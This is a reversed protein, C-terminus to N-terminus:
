GVFLQAALGGLKARAQGLALREVRHQGFNKGDNALGAFAHQVHPVEVHLDHAALYEEFAADGLHPGAFALRQDRREGTYARASSPRPTCTTM